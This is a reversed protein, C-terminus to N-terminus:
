AAQGRRLYEQVLWWRDRGWTLLEGCHFSPVGWLGAQLLAQRNAEAASLEYGQQLQRSVARWDLGAQQCVKMLGADSAVDLGQSWVARSAALLFQM